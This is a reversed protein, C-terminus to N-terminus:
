VGGLDNEIKNIKENMKNNSTPQVIYITIKLLANNVYRVSPLSQIMEINKAIM